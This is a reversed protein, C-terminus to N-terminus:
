GYSGIVALTVMSPVEGKTTLTAVLSLSVPDGVTLQYTQATIQLNIRSPEQAAVSRVFGYQIVASLLLALGLYGFVVRLRCM